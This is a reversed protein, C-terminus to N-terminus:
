KKKARAKSSDVPVRVQGSLLKQLLGKRQAQILSLKQSLFELDKDINSFFLGIKNQENQPPIELKIKSFEHKSIENFTSGNAFKIFTNKKSSLKYFLFDLSFSNAPLLAKFGQNVSIPVKNIAIEGITARTSIVLSDKPLLKASSNILGSETINRETSFIYRGKLKSIESPTLWPINGNWYEEKITKPTGGSEIIGCDNVDIMQWGKPLKHNGSPKGFEPFRMQGTLLKQMLGQKLKKKAEILRKTQEIAKDWASLIEAIKKQEPLPPLPVPISAFDKYYLRM